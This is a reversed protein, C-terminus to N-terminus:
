QHGDNYDVKPKSSPAPNGGGSTQTVKLREEDDINLGSSMGRAGANNSAYGVTSNTLYTSMAQVSAQNPNWTVTTGLNSLGYSRAEAIADQNAGLYIFQWKYTGEQHRTRTVLDSRKFVKSANEQGDTIVIFLVQDPRESEHLRAFRAGTQDIAKCFADILPTNGRPSITVAEVERIPRASMVVEQDNIDDFAIVTLRTTPVKKHGKILSRLAGEMETRIAGMSGSRDILITLDTYQKM